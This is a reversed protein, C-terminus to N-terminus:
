LSAIARKYLKVVDAHRTRNADNFSEVHTLNKVDDGLFDPHASPLASLLCQYAAREYRGDVLNLAGVACFRVPKGDINREIYDGKMWNRKNRILRLAARLTEKTNRPKKM